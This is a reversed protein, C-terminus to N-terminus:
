KIIYIICVTVTDFHKETQFTQFTLEVVFGEEVRIKYICRQGEPYQQPYNTSEIIGTTGNFEGGNCVVVLFSIFM